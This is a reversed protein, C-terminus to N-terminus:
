GMMAAIAIGPVRWASADAEYATLKRAVRHGNGHTAFWPPKPFMTFPGRVVSKQPRDFMKTNHVVGMGSVIDAMTHGPFAGWTPTVLGYGIGGWHNVVVCGYRLDAIAQELVPGLQRATAPHVLLACSLTGWVQENCLRTARQLFDGPDREPLATEALIGCWAEMRFAVDDRREPDVGTILTWPLVTPARAGLQVAEPHASLFADYKKDSGPYYAKRVGIGALVDALKKLFRERLPWAKSTILLKAANCNFSGNNVVMTAVNAAQFDLEGESWSDPVVIVPTVCGLESTIRKTLRPTNAKRNADQEAGPPGWVIVDHVRDSGTIHVEDV